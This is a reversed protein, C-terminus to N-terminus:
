RPRNLELERARANSRVRRAVEAEGKAILVSEDGASRLSAEAQLYAPYTVPSVDFLRSFKSITRVLAGDDEREWRESDKAVLFSFSSQTIRKDAIYAAVRESVDDDALDCEYRLGIEDVILRLSGATTRGLILSPEHNFLGVTDGTLVDDFAGPLITESFQSAVGTDSPKVRGMPQSRVNFKAAYGVIMAAIPTEEAEGTVAARFEIGECTASLSRSEM